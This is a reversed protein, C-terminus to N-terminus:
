AGIGGKRRDPCSFRIIDDNRVGIRFGNVFDNAKKRKGALTQIGDQREAMRLGSVGRGTIPVHSDALEPSLLIMFVYKM